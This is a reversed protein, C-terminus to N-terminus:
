FYFRLMNEAEKIGFESARELDRKAEKNRKIAYYAGGRNYYYEGSNPNLMIAKTYDEIASELNDMRHYLCGRNNYYRPNKEFTIAKDYHLLADLNNEKKMFQEAKTFYFDGLDIVSYSFLRNVEPMLKMLQEENNRSIIVSKELEFAENQKELQNKCVNLLVLLEDYLKESDYVVKNKKTKNRYLTNGIFCLAIILIFILITIM